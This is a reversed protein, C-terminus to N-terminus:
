STTLESVRAGGGWLMAAKVARHQGMAAPETAETAVLHYMSSVRTDLFM